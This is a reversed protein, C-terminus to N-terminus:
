QGPRKGPGRPCRATHDPRHKMSLENQKFLHSCHRATSYSVPAVGFGNGGCPSFTCPELVASEPFLAVQLPLEPHRPLLAPNSLTVCGKGGAQARACTRGPHSSFAHRRQVQASRIICCAFPNASAVLGLGSHKRWCGLCSFNGERRSFTVVKHVHGDPAPGLAPTEM